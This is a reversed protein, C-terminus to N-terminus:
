HREVEPITIIATTGQGKESKFTLKGGIRSIIDNSISVGLGTGEGAPKTTHFFEFINEIEVGDMGVGNDSILIQIGSESPSVSINIKKDDNDKVAYAANTLINLFVQQLEGSDAMVQFGKEPYNESVEVNLKEINHRCFDLAKKLPVVPNIRSIAPEKRSFALIREVISKIRELGENIMQFYEEEREKALDGKRIRKVANIVGSLPNNIEHAVGSALKGTAALRDKFALDKQAQEIKITADRIKDQLHKRNEGVEQAMTSFSNMLEGIEDKRSTLRNDGPIGGHKLIKTMALIRIVPDLVLRSTLLYVVSILFFTGAVMGLIIAEMGESIERFLAQKDINAHLYCTIGNELKIVGVISQYGSVSPSGSGAITNGASDLIVWNDALLGSKQMDGALEKIENGVDEAFMGQSIKGNLINTVLLADAKVINQQLRVAHNARALLLCLLVILLTILMVAIVSFLLKSRLKM